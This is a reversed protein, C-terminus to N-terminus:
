AKAKSHFAFWLIIVNLALALVMALLGFTFGHIKQTTVDLSIILSVIATGVAGSFQQFTNFLANGDAIKQPVLGHLGNTMINSYCMGQGLTFLMFLLTVGWVNAHGVTLWYLVLAILELSAGVLIPRKAGFRDLLMGGVPALLAGLLAGPLMAIGSIFSSEHLTLQIMTPLLFAMGLITFQTLGFSLLHLIFSREKVLNLALIPHSQRQYWWATIGCSVGGIAIWVLGLITSTALKNFGLILTSFDIALLLWGVFDLYKPPTVNDASRITMIGIILAIIILPIICIFIARWSWISVLFGGFTPGVAPAIATIFNGVGMLLGIKNKPAQTLIINFMMPLSIGTGMGQFVRGIILLALNPAVADLILGILFMSAAFTFLYPLKFKRMLYVTLPMMAALVLLYATTLWQINALSTNFEVTLKPFTINMATEVLVGMFSLLGTAFISLLLRPTIKNM